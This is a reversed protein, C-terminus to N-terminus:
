VTVEPSFYEKSLDGVLSSWALSGSESPTSSPDEDDGLGEKEVEGQRPQHYKHPVEFNLLDQAMDMHNHTTLRKRRPSRPVSPHLKRQHWLVGGLLTAVLVLVIVSAMVGLLTATVSRTAAETPEPPTATIM